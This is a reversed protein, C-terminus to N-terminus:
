RGGGCVAVAPRFPCTLLRTWSSCPGWSCFPLGWVPVDVVKDLFQLVGGAGGRGGQWAAVVVAAAEWGSGAVAQRKMVSGGMPEADVAWRSPM